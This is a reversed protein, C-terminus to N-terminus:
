SAAHEGSSARTVALAKLFALGGALGAVSAVAIVDLQLLGPIAGATITAVATQATTSVVRDATDMWWAKSYKRM